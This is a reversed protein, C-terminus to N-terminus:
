PGLTGRNLFFEAPGERYDATFVLVHEGDAAATRFEHELTASETWSQGDAASIWTTVESGSTTLAVFGGDVVLLEVPGASPEAAPADVATWHLGDPSTFAVAVGERGFNAYDSQGLALFGGDPMPAVHTLRVDDLVAQPTSAEWTEGDTSMWSAGGGGGAAEPDGRLGVLLYRGDAWVLDNAEIGSAFANATNSAPTVEVWSTEPTWRWVRGARARYQLEIAVLAPDGVALGTVLYGQDFLPSHSELVEWSVGDASRWGVVGRGDCCGIFTGYSLLSDGLRIIPGLGAGIFLDDPLPDVAAERTWTRADTSTWAGPGRETAWGGVIWTGGDDFIANPNGDFPEPEDWAIVPPGAAESPEATASPETTPATSESPETQTASPSPPASGTRASDSPQQGACGTVLFLLM